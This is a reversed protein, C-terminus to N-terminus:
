KFINKGAVPSAPIFFINSSATQKTGEISVSRQTYDSYHSLQACYDYIEGEDMNTKIKGSRMLGTALAAFDTPSVTESYIRAFARMYSLGIQSRSVASMDYGDYFLMTAAIEGTMKRYGSCLEGRYEFAYPVLLEFEGAEDTLSAVADASFLAYRDIRAGVLKRVLEIMASPKKETYVNQLVTTGSTVTNDEIPCLSVIQHETDFNVLLLSVIRGGDELGLLVTSEKTQPEFAIKDMYCSTIIIAAIVAFAAFSLLFSRAFTLFKLKM